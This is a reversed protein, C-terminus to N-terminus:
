QLHIREQRLERLIGEDTYNFYGNVKDTLEAEVGNLDADAVNDMTMNGGAMHMDTQLFGEYGDNKAFDYKDLELPILVQLYGTSFSYAPDNSKSIPRMTYGSVKFTLQTQKVM